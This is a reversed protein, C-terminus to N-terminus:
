KMGGTYSEHPISFTLLFFISTFFFLLGLIIRHQIAATGVSSWMGECGSGAWTGAASAGEGMGAM